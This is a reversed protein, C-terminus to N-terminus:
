VGNLGSPASGGYRGWAVVTGDTKLAAFAYDNSYITQVGNLGSPASGGSGGHDGWAVVTGNTKLAAFADRNKWSTGPNYAMSVCCLTLLVFCKILLM